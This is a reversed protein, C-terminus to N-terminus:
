CDQSYLNSLITVKSINNIKSKESIAATIAHTIGNSIINRHITIEDHSITNEVDNVDNSICADNSNIKPYTDSRTENVVRTGSM